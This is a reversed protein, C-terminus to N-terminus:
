QAIYLHPKAISYLLTCGGSFTRFNDGLCNQLFAAVSLQSAFSFVFLLCFAGLKVVCNYYMTALLAIYLYIGKSTCFFGDGAYRSKCSCTYSGENNHCIASDHCSHNGIACEDVDTTLLHFINVSYTLASNKICLNFMIPFFLTINAVAM